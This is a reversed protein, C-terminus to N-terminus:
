HTIQTSIINYPPIVPLATVIITADLSIILNLLALTYIIAKEHKSPMWTEESMEPTKSATEESGLQLPDSPKGILTNGRDPGLPSTQLDNM